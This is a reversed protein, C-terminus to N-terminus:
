ISVKDLKQIGNLCKIFGLKKKKEFMKINESVVDQSYSRPHYIHYVIARNKVSKKQLGLQELRWEIDVDEGVGPKIYDEDFGNVELLHKKRIGWNCGVLGRLKTALHFQPNYVCEKVCKSDSFLLSLLNLRKLCTKDQIYSSVKEGLKVRRGVLILDQKCNHIYEKVFHKHPICDGDIFAIIDSKSKKISKNLMMNKRFGKDENQYLHQIAFNYLHKHHNLFNITEKNSDDESIIAEFNRESQNNLGKLILKLNDIARYYSIVVTLKM